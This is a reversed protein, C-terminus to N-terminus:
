YKINTNKVLEDYDKYDFLVNSAFVNNIEFLINAKVNSECLTCKIM